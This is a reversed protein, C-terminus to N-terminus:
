NGGLNTVSQKVGVRQAAADLTYVVGGMLIEEGYMPAYAYGLGGVAVGFLENPVDFPAAGELTSQAMSSGLYGGAVAASRAVTDEDTLADFSDALEPM